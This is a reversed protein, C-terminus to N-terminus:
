ISAVSDAQGTLWNWIKGKWIDNILAYSVGYEEALRRQGGRGMEPIRRVIDLVQIETLKSKSQASGRLTYQGADFERRNQVQQDPSAWRVNGPEYNGENDIRDLQWYARGGKTRGEPREGVDRVFAWFDEVWESCVSIGRGGYDSYRAHSPNTCRRKLDHYISYLPHSTKGGRWNPNNEGARVM